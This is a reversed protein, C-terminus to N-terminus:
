VDAAEDDALFEAARQAWGAQAAAYEAAQREQEAEAAQAAAQALALDDPTLHPLLAAEIRRLDHARVIERDLHRDYALSVALPAQVATPVGTGVTVLMPHLADVDTIDAHECQAPAGGPGSSYRLGFARPVWAAAEGGSEPGGWRVAAAVVVVGEGVRRTRLEVFRPAGAEDVAVGWVERGGASTHTLPAGWAPCEVGGWDSHEAAAAHVRARYDAWAEPTALDDATPSEGGVWWHGARQARRAFLRLAEHAGRGVVAFTLSNCASDLDGLLDAPAPIAPM